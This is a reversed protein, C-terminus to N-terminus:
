LQAARPAPDPVPRRGRGAAHGRARRRRAPVCARAAHGAAVSGRLPAAGPQPNANVAPDVPPVAIEAFPELDVGNHISKLFRDFWRQRLDARLQGEVDNDATGHGETSGVFRKPRAAAFTALANSTTNAVHHLDGWSNEALIPVLSAQTRALHNRVVDAQLQAYLQPYNGAQM